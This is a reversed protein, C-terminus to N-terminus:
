FIEAVCCRLSGGGKEIEDLPVSHIRFGLQDLEGRHAPTLAAAAGGSMWLDTASLAICNGVFAAKERDDLWIVAPEYLGAIARPVAPDAFSAAHVVLARGALVSMVVNTHYEGPALDFVFTLDLGFAEHMAEAGRRDCRESLGCFGLNRARDIVLPGTLEAVVSSPLDVVKYGALASFLERVDKREAERRRVPHRMSGVILKGPVTAFVNNPFVADPTAPDGPLTLVPLTSGLARALRNHELLAREESVDVGLDMYHNDSASEDALRFGIPSVLFAARATPAAAPLPERGSFAARAAAPSDVIM